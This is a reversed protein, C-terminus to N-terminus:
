LCEFLGVFKWGKGTTRNFHSQRCMQEAHPSMTTAPDGVSEKTWCCYRPTWTYVCECVCQCSLMQVSLFVWSIKHSQHKATYCAATTIRATLHAHCQMTWWPALHEMHQWLIELHIHTSHLYVWQGQWTQLEGRESGRQKKKKRVRKSRDNNFEKECKTDCYGGVGWGGVSVAPAKFSQDQRGRALLEHRGASGGLLVVFPFIFLCLSFSLSRLQPPLRNCLQQASPSVGHCIGCESGPGSRFPHTILHVTISVSCGDRFILWTRKEGFAGSLPCHRNAEM